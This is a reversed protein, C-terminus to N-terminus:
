CSRNRFDNSQQSIAAARLGMFGVFAGGGLFFFLLFSIKKLLLSTLVFVLKGQEGATSWDILQIERVFETGSRMCVETLSERYIFM